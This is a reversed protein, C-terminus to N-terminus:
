TVNRPRFRASRLVVRHRQAQAIGRCCRYSGIVVMTGMSYVVRGVAEPALEPLDETGSETEEGTLNLYTIYFLIFGGRVLLNALVYPIHPIARDSFCIRGPHFIISFPVVANFHPKGHPLM